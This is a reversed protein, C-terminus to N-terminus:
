QELTATAARAEEAAKKCLQPSCLVFRQSNM